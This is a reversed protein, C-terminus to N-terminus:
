VTLASPVFSRRMVAHPVILSECSSQDASPVLSTKSVLQRGPVPGSRQIMLASPLPSRLRVFSGFRVGDMGKRAEKSGVQAGAPDRIM